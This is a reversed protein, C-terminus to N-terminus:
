KLDSLHANWWQQGQGVASLETVRNDTLSPLVRWYLPMWLLKDTSFRVLQGLVQMRQDFPITTFYREVLTDTEPNMWRIYNGGFYNREPTRAEKSLLANMGDPGYGIGAQLSFNRFNSRYALDRQRQNTVIEADPTIGITKWNDLVAFQPKANADDQTAMIQISLPKGAADDFMGDGGKRYGLEEIMQTSRRPDYEYRVIFPEISKYEPEM